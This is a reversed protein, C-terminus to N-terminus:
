LFAKTLNSFILSFSRINDIDALTADVSLGKDIYQRILESISMRHKASLTELANFM